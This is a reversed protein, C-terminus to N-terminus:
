CSVGARTSEQLSQSVKLLVKKVFYRRGMRGVGSVKKKQGVGCVCGRVWAIWAVLSILCVRNKTGFM